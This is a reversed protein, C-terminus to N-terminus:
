AVADDHRIGSRDTALPYRTPFFFVTRTRRVTVRLSPVVREIRTFRSCHTRMRLALNTFGRTNTAGVIGTSATSVGVMPARM